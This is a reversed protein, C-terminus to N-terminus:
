TWSQTSRIFRGLSPDYLRAGLHTYGTPDETGGLFGKDGPWSTPQAGRPQGFPLTRKRQSTLSAADVAVTATNHHDTILWTLRDSTRMAIQEGLHTYYRTCSLTQTANDYRLEQSGLYLTTGDPDHRILRNGDADYVYETQGDVSDDISEIQGDPTWTLQQTDAVLTRATMHGAQDYTYTHLQSGGSNTVQAETVTHAQPSGPTPHTYTTSQQWSGGGTGAGYRHEALRNGTVDYQYAVRYPAVGGISTLNPAANCNFPLPSTPTWADTLRRLHDYRYCQTDNPNTVGPPDAIRKVNGAPDYSYTLDLVETKLEPVASTNVLRGTPEDYVNTVAVRKGFNGLTRQVLEGLKSYTAQYVYIQLASTYATQQGVDDYLFVLEEGPLDGAAPVTM